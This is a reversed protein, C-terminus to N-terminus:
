ATESNIYTVNKREYQIENKQAWEEALSGPAVTVTLNEIDFFAGKGISYLYDPFSVSQLGSCSLFAYDGIFRLNEPLELESLSECKYFAGEGISNLFKPLDITKLAKCESFTYREIRTLGSPLKVTELDQCDSFASVGLTTVSDPIKISVLGSDAFAADGITVISSPLEIKKLEHHKYFAENGISKVSPRVSFSEAESNWLYAILERTERNYLSNEHTEFMTNFPSIDINKLSICGCFPNGTIETVNEPISLENIYINESFAAGAIKNIWNPITYDNDSKAAPYSILAKAKLDYLVGNESSYYINDGSLIIAELSSCRDFPNMGIRVLSEPLTIENLKIDGQFVLDGLWQLHPPLDVKHLATCEVFCHDGISLVSDPFSVSEIMENHSFAATGVSTVPTNDIVAPITIDTDTGQYGTIEASGDSLITYIFDGYVNNEAICPITLLLVIIMMLIIYILKKM